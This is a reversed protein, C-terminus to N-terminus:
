KGGTALADLVNGTNALSIAVTAVKRDPTIISATLKKSDRLMKAAKADVPIVPSQCGQQNCQYYPFSIPQNNDFQLGLGKMLITGPPVIFVMKIQPAAALPAVNILIMEFIQNGAADKGFQVVRCPEQNQPNQQPDQACDVLWPGIKQGNTFGAASAPATFAVLSICAAAICAVVPALGLSKVLTPFNLM